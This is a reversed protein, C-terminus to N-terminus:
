AVTPSFEPECFFDFYNKILDLSSLQFGSLRYFHNSCTSLKWQSAFVKLHDKYCDLNKGLLSFIYFYPALPTWSPDHPPLLGSSVCSCTPWMALSLFSQAVLQFPSLSPFMFLQHYCCLPSLFFLPAGWGAIRWSDRKYREMRDICLM